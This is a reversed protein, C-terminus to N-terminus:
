YREEILRDIEEILNQLRALHRTFGAPADDHAMIASQAYEISARLQGLTETLNLEIPADHDLAHQFGAGLANRRWDWAKAEWDCEPNLCRVDYCRHGDHDRPVVDFTARLQRTTKV